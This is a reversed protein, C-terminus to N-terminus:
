CGVISFISVTLLLVIHIVIIGAVSYSSRHICGYGMGVTRSQSQLSQLSQLSQISQSNNSGMNNLTNNLSNYNNFDLNSISFPVSGNVNNNSNNQPLSVPVKLSSLTNMNVLTSAMNNMNLQGMNINQNQTMQCNNSHNTNMNNMNNTCPNLVIQSLINQQINTGFNININQNDTHPFATFHTQQNQLQPLNPVNYDNGRMNMMASLNSNTGNINPGNEFIGLVRVNNTDIDVSDRKININKVDIKRDIAHNINQLNRVMNMKNLGLIDMNVNNSVKNKNINMNNVNNKNEAKTPVNIMKNQFNNVNNNNEQTQIQQTTIINLQSRIKNILLKTKHEVPSVKQQEIWQRIQLSYHISQLFQHMEDSCIVTGGNILPQPKTNSYKVAGNFLLRLINLFLSNDM